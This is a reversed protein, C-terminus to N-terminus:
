IFYVLIILSFLFSLEVDIDLPMFGKKLCILKGPQELYFFCDAAMLTKKKNTKKKRVFPWNKSKEELVAM